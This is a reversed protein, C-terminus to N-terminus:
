AAVQESNASRSRNQEEHFELLEGFTVIPEESHMKRVKPLQWFPYEPFNHHEWHIGIHHPSFLFKQWANLYVRHTGPIDTHETYIRLRFVAWFTTFKSVMFLIFFEPHGFYWSLGASMLIFSGAWIPNDKKGFYLMTHVFEKFSAGFCDSIFDTFLRKKTIPLHYRDGKMNHEPDKGDKGLHKHHDGHFQRYSTLDTLLPWFCFVQGIIDNVKRNNSILGHVGEHGLVSLRHQAIGLLLLSIPYAIYGGVAALYFALVMLGYDGALAGFFMILNIPQKINPNKM